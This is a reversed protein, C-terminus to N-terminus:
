RNQLGSCLALIGGGYKIQYPYSSKFRQGKSEYDFARDLQAVGTFFGSVPVFLDEWTAWSQNAEGTRSQRCIAQM